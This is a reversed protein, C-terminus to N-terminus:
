RENHHGRTTVSVAAEKAEALALNHKLTEQIAWQQYAYALAYSVACFVFLYLMYPM